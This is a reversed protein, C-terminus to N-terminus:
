LFSARTQRPKLLLTARGLRQQEHASDGGSNTAQVRFYYVTGYSLGSVQVATVNAGTTGLVYWNTGDLSYSVKFGTENNSNDRWNLQATSSSTSWASFNSAANPITTTATSTKASVMASAASTGSGNTALVRYYYTTGAALGTNAFSTVGSGLTGVTSWTAGDTSRDVRFGTAGTM